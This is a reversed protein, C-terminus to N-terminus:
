QVHDIKLIGKLDVDIGAEELCERRAAQQFCEDKELSGGVCWWGKNKTEEITLWKNFHNGSYPNRCIVLSYNVTPMVFRPM